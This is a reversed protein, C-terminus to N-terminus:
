HSITCVIATGDAAARTFLPLLKQLHGWVWEFMEEDIEHFQNDPLSMFREHMWEKEVNALAKAVRPVKEADVLSATRYDHRYIQRGGLVVLKLPMPGCTFILDASRDGTLCRHIPEWAKDMQAHVPLEELRELWTQLLEGVATMGRKKAAVLAAAEEPSVTFWDAWRSMARRAEAASSAILCFRKQTIALQEFVHRARRKWCALTLGM